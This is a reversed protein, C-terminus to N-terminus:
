HLYKEQYAALREDYSVNLERAIHVLNCESAVIKLQERRKEYIIRGHAFWERLAGDINQAAQDERSISKTHLVSHLSKFISM